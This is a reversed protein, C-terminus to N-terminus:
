LRPRRTAANILASYVIDELMERPQRQVWARIEPATLDAADVLTTMAGEGMALIVGSRGSRRQERESARM